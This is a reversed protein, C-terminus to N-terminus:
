GSTVFDIQRTGESSNNKKDIIIILSVHTRNICNNVYFHILHIIYICIIVSFQIVFLWIIAVIWSILMLLYSKWMNDIVLVLM